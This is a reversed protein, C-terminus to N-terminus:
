ILDCSEKSTIKNKLFDRAKEHINIATQTSINLKKAIQNWTTLKKDGSFYRLFYVQKIRNDSFGSLIKDIYDYMENNADNFILNQKESLFDITKDESLVYKKNSNIFNLFHYKSCNCFWTSFKTKQSEDFSSIAKFLVYNKEQKIDERSMGMKILIPIYRQAISYYFNDYNESLKVFSDNCNTKKIRKVLVLDQDIVKLRKM